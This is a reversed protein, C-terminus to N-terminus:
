TLVEPARSGIETTSTRVQLAGPLVLYLTRPMARTSPRLM